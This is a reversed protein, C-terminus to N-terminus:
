EKLRDWSYYLTESHNLPFQPLVIIDGLLLESSPINCNSFPYAYFVGWGKAM